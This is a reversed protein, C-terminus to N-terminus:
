RTAAPAGNVLFDISPYGSEAATKTMAKVVGAPTEADIALIVHTPAPDNPAIQKALDYRRKLATFVGEHRKPKGLDIEDLRGVREGEVFIGEPKVDVIPATVIEVGNAMPLRSTDHGLDGHTAFTLLLFVVLVVMVDIMSTMSLGAETKRRGPTSLTKSPMVRGLVRAVRGRGIRTGERSVHGPARISM